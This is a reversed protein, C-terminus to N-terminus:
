KRLERQYVRETEMTRAPPATTTPQVTTVSATQPPEQACAALFIIPLAVVFAKSLHKM